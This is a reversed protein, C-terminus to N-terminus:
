KAILPKTIPLVSWPKSNSYGEGVNHWLNSMLQLVSYKWKGLHIWTKRQDWEKNRHKEDKQVLFAKDTVNWTTFTFGPKPKWTSELYSDAKLRLSAIVKSRQLPNLNTVCYPDPSFTHHCLHASKPTWSYFVETTLRYSILPSVSNSAQWHLWIRNTKWKDTKQGKKGRRRERGGDSNKERKRGKKREGEM